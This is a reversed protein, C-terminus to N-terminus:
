EEVQGPTENGPSDLATWIVWRVLEEQEDVVEKEGINLLGEGEKEINTRQTVVTDNHSRGGAKSLSPEHRRSIQRATDEDTCNGYV